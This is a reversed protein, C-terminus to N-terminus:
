SMYRTREGLEVEDLAQVASERGGLASEVEGSGGECLSRRQPTPHTVGRHGFFLQLQPLRISWPHNCPWCGNMVEYHLVQRHRWAQFWTSTNGLRASASVFGSM